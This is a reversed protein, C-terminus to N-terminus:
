YMETWMLLTIVSYMSHFCIVYRLCSWSLMCGLAGKSLPVENHVFTVEPSYPIAFIWLSIFMFMNVVQLIHQVQASLTIGFCKWKCLHFINIQPKIKKKEKLTNKWFFTIFTIFISSYHKNLKKKEESFTM